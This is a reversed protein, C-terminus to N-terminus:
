ATPVQQVTLTGQLLNTVLGTGSTMQLNYLGIGPTLTATTGGSVAIAISGTTGGLTIGSGSSIAIFSSTDTLNYVADLAATYATLDIANGSSDTWTFNETWDYGQYIITNYPAPLTTM